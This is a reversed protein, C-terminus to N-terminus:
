LRFSVGLFPNFDAAYRNLGFNMGLDLQINEDVGLTLGSDFTPRWPQSGTLDVTQFLEFYVGLAQSVGITTSVSAVLEVHHGNGAGNALYDVEGMVTVGVRDGVAFEAPAMLGTEWEDSTVREAGIPISIYPMLAVASKGNDNGKLNYKLRVQPDSFGLVPFKSGGGVRGETWQSVGSYMLVLQVDANDSFGYKAIGGFEGTRLM